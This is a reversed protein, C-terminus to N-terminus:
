ITRRIGFVVRWAATAACFLPRELDRALELQM